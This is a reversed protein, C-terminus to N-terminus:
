TLIRVTEAVSVRRWSDEPGRRAFLQIYANPISVSHYQRVVEDDPLGELERAIALLSASHGVVMQHGTTTNLKQNIFERTREFLDYYNEGGPPRYKLPGLTRYLEFQDPHLEEVGLYTMNWFIGYERKNLRPDTTLAPDYSLKGVIECASFETRFYESIWVTELPNSDPFLLNLIVAASECEKLGKTTVGVSKDSGSLAYYYGQAPKETEANAFSHAHRVLALLQEQQM